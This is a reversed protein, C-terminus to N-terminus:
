RGVGRQSASEWLRVGEALVARLEGAGEGLTGTFTKLQCIGKMVAPLAQLAGRLSPNGVGILAPPILKELLLELESRGRVGAALLDGDPPAVVVLCPLQRLTDAHEVARRVDLLIIDVEAGRHLFFTLGLIKPEATLSRTIFRQSTSSALALLAATGFTMDAVLLVHFREATATTTWERLEESTWLQLEGLTFPDSLGEEFTMAWAATPLGSLVRVNPANVATLLRHSHKRPPAATRQAEDHLRAGEMLLGTISATVTYQEPGITPPTPDLEFYGTPDALLRHFAEHGSLNGALAHVAHGEVFVVQGACSKGVIHLTGTRCGMSLMMVLDALPLATFDGALSYPRQRAAERQKYHRQIAATCRAALEAKDIPKTLYDQVGARFATVKAAVRADASLFMVPIHHYWSDEAIRRMFQPGTMDPLATDCVILDITTTRLADFAATADRAIEVGLGYAVLALEVFRGSVRDGDVVLVTGTPATAGPSVSPPRIRPPRGTM